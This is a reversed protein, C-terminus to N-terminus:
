NVALSLTNRFCILQLYPFEKEKIRRKRIRESIRLVIGKWDKNQLLETFNRGSETVIGIKTWGLSFLIKPLISKIAVIKESDAQISNKVFLCIVVLYYIFHYTQYRKM